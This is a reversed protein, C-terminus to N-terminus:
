PLQVGGVIEGFKGPSNTGRRAFRGAHQPNVLRRYRNLLDFLVNHFPSKSLAPDPRLRRFHARPLLNRDHAGTGGTKCRRLLQAPSTMRNGHVLFSVANTSEQPIADRVELHLACNKVTSQFLHRGLAHLKHGIRM